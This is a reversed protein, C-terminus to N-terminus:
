LRGETSARAADDTPLLVGDVRRLLPLAKESAVVAGPDLRKACRTAGATGTWNSPHTSRFLGGLPVRQLDM